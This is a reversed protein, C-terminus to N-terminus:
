CAPAATHASEPRREIGQEHFWEFAEAATHFSGFVFVCRHGDARRRAEVLAGRVTPFAEVPVDGAVTRVREALEAGTQARWGDKLGACLFAEVQPALMRAVSEADKDRLMGLVCYCRSDRLRLTDAVVAAALPNHGVDVLYGPPDGVPELRGPIHAHVLGQQVREPLREGVPFLTLAATMGAALNDQQHPGGLLPTLFAYEAGKLHLVSHEEDRRELRFDRGARLVPCGLDRARELV